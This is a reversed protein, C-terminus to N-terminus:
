INVLLFERTISIFNEANWSYFEKSDKVFPMIDNIVQKFNVLIFKTSLLEVVETRDFVTDPSLHGSQIMRNRLHILNVPIKNKIYWIYDYYDRGKVRKNWNRCLLAHIKGAFLSSLDYLKVSHMIPIIRTKVDYTAGDPPNIDIEIKIRIKENHAIKLVPPDISTINMIQIITGGKIFASQIQSEKAKVKKSIELDFGFSGLEDAVAPFYDEIDFDLDSKLLSFAMDESFRNLGHFIRLATGGYFAAKNFFGSRSLGLLTIEQIIEKAANKYDASSKCNYRDLMTKISNDV